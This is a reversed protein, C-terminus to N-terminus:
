LLAMGVSFLIDRSWEISPEHKFSVALNVNVSEAPTWAVNFCLNHIDAPISNRTERLFSYSSSLSIEKSILYEGGVTLTLCHNQILASPPASFSGQCLFQTWPDIALGFNADAIALLDNPGGMPDLVEYGLGVKIDGGCWRAYTENKVIEGIKILTEADLKRNHLLPSQELIEQLINLFEGLTDYTDYNAIKYAMSKITANTLNGAIIGQEMLYANIKMAQSLPTVDYFRGFGLGGRIELGAINSYSSSIKGKTGAFVFWPDNPAFYYKVNAEGTGLFSSLELGSIYLNDNTSLDFGFMPSNFKQSYAFSLQGLNVDENGDHSHHYFFNINANSFSTENPYRLSCPSMASGVLTFLMLLGLFLGLVMMKKGNKGVIKM